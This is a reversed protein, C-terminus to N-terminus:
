EDRNLILPLLYYLLWMIASVAAAVYTLAAASLVGSVARMEDQSRIVGLDSLVVKARASANYENPVTVLTFLTFAGFLAIGIITIWGAMGAVAFEGSTSIQQFGGMFAGIMIIWPAMGSGLGAAPALWSRLGLSWSGHAHQLAHGVEHAAVGAAAAHRGHYVDASLALQKKKPHYHDSLIGPTEVVEVDNVDKNRLIMRAIEAGTMGSQIPVNKAAAFRTKVMGGTIVSILITVGLVVFFILM